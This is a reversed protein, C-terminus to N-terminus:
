RSLTSYVTTLERADHAIEAATSAGSFVRLRAVEGHYMQGSEAAGWFPGGLRSGETSRLGVTAVQGDLKGDIYLKLTQMDYTMVVYTWRNTALVTKGQASDNLRADNLRDTSLTGDANLVLSAINGGQAMIVQKRGVESPKIMLEITVPGVPLTTIGMDVASSIGDFQLSDHMYGISHWVPLAGKAAVAQVLSAHLAHGSIDRLKSDPLKAVAWRDQALFQYDVWTRDRRANEWAGDTYAITGDVFQVLAGYYDARPPQPLTPDPMWTDLLPKTATDPTPENLVAGSKMYAIGEVAPAGAAKVSLLRTAPINSDANAAKSNILLTAPHTQLKHLPVNFTLPDGLVEDDSVPIPPLNVYSRTFPKAGTATLEIRLSLMDRPTTIPVTWRATSAAIATGDVPALPLRAVEEGASNSIIFSGKVQKFSDRLPLNLLEFDLPQGPFAKKLYTAIVHPQTDAVRSRGLWPDTYAQLIELIASTHKYSPELQGAEVFDNWTGSTVFDPNSKLIHEIANRLTFTGRPSVYNRQNQRASYYGNTAVAGYVRKDPYARVTKAFDAYGKAVSTDLTTPGFTYVGAVYPLLDPIHLPDVKGAVTWQTTAGVDTIWYVKDGAEAFRAALRPVSEWSLGAHAYDIVVPVGDVKYWGPDNRHASLAQHFFDYFRDEKEEVTTGQSVDAFPIVKAGPVQHTADIYGDFIKFIHTNDKNPILDVAFVAGPLYKQLQTLQWVYAPQTGTAFPRDYCTRYAENHGRPNCWNPCVTIIV